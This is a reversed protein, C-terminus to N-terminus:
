DWRFFGDLLKNIQKHKQKKKSCKFGRVFHVNVRALRVTGGVDVFQAAQPFAAITELALSEGHHRMKHVTM